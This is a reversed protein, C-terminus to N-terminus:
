RGRLDPPTPPLGDGVHETLLAVLMDGALAGGVLRTTLGVILLAGGATQRHDALRRLPDSNTLKPPGPTGPTAVTIPLPGLYSRKPPPRKSTALQSGRPVPCLM